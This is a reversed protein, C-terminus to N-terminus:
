LKAGAGRCLADRWAGALVYLPQRSRDPRRFPRRKFGSTLHDSVGAVSVTRDTVLDDLGYAFAASVYAGYWSTAGYLGIQRIESSGNRPREPELEYRRRCVALGVVTNPSVFRDIGAAAGRQQHQAPQQRDFLQRRVIGLRWLGRGM